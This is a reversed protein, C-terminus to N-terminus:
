CVKNILNELEKYTYKKQPASGGAGSATLSSLGTTGTTGSTSLGTLSPGLTSTITPKPLGLGLSTTGPTTVYATGPKSTFGSLGTTATSAGSSLTPLGSPPAAYPPPPKM